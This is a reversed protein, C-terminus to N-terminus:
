PITPCVGYGYRVKPKGTYSVPENNSFDDKFFLLNENMELFLIFNKSSYECELVTTTDFALHKFWCDDNVVPEM